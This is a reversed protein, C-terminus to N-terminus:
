LIAACDGARVVCGGDVDWDYRLKMGSGPLTVRVLRDHADLELVLEADDRRIARSRGGHTFTLDTRGHADRVSMTPGRAPAEIAVFWDRSAIRRLSGAADHTFGIRTGDAQTWEATRGRADHRLRRAGRACDYLTVWGHVDASQPRLEAAA